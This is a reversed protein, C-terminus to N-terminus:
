SFTDPIRAIPGSAWKGKPNVNQLAFVLQGTIRQSAGPVIGLEERPPGRAAIAQRVKSHLAIRAGYCLKGPYMLNEMVLYEVRKLSSARAYRSKRLEILFFFFFFFFGVASKGQEPSPLFLEGANADNETRWASRSNRAQPKRWQKLNFL